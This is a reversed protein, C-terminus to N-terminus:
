TVRRNFRNMVETAGNTVLCQLAEVAQNTMTEIAAQEPAGFPNLVYDAVDQGSEPRGIGLKLRYFGEMGLAIIISRLGNHGGTGGGFKVRLHGVPLDLDDHVVILHDGGLGYEKVLPEVMEGSLNMWTLPLALAVPNNDLWGQWLQGRSSPAVRISWRSATHAVVNWGINHRTATYNM